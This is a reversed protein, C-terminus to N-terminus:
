NITEVKNNLSIIKSKPKEAEPNHPKFIELGNKTIVMYLYNEFTKSKEVFNMAEDKSLNFSGSPHNAFEGISGGLKESEEMLIKMHLEAEQRKYTDALMEKATPLEIFKKIVVINGTRLYLFMGRKIQRIQMLEIVQEPNDMFIFTNNEM